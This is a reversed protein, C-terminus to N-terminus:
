ADADIREALDLDLQTVGGASHTVLTLTVEAGSGTIEPHHNMGDAITSVRALFEKAAAPDAFRYTKSIGSTTGQWGELDDLSAHVADPNLLNAM